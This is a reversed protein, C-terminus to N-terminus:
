PAALGASRSRGRTHSPRGTHTKCGSNRRASGKCRMPSSPGEPPTVGWSHALSGPCPGDPWQATQASLGQPLESLSQVTSASFAAKGCLFLPLVWAYLSSTRGHFIVLVVGCLFNLLQKFPVGGCFMRMEKSPFGGCVKSSCALRSSFWFRFFVSYAPGSLAPPRKKTGMKSLLPHAIRTRM